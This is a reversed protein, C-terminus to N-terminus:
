AHAQVLLRDFGDLLPHELGSPFVALWDLDRRLCLRAEPEALVRYAASTFRVDPYLRARLTASTFASKVCWDRPLGNGNQNTPVGPCDGPYRRRRRVVASDGTSATGRIPTAPLCGRSLLFCSHHLTEPFSGHQRANQLPVTSGSGNSRWGLSRGCSTTRVAISDATASDLMGRRGSAKRRKRM